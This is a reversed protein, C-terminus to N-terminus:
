NLNLMLIKFLDRSEQSVILAKVYIFSNNSDKILWVYNYNSDKYEHLTRNNGTYSQSYNLTLIDGNERNSIKVQEIPATNSNSFNQTIEEITLIDFYTSKSLERLSETLIEEKKSIEEESNSNPGLIDNINYGLSEIMNLKLSAEPNSEILFKRIFISDSLSGEAYFETGPEVVRWNLPLLINKFFRNNYTSIKESNISTITLDNNFSLFENLILKESDKVLKETNIEELQTEQKQYSYFYFILLITLSISLTTTIFIYKKM